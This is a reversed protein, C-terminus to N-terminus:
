ILKRTMTFLLKDNEGLLYDRFRILERKTPNGLRAKKGSSEQELNQVTKSGMGFSKRLADIKRTCDDTHDCLISKIEVRLDRNKQIFGKCKEENAKVDVNTEFLKKM